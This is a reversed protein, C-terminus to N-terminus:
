GLGSSPRHWRQHAASRAKASQGGSDAAAEDPLNLQRLLSAKARAQKDRSGILPHEVDQGTSGKTMYPRGLEDWATFFESELDAAVCASELIQLEDPRLDWRKLVSQWLAKGTASLSRPPKVASM